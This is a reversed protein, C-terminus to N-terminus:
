PVNVAFKRAMTRIVNTIDIESLEENYILCECFNGKLRYSSTNGYGIGLYANTANDPYFNSGSSTTAMSVGNVMMTLGSGDGNTKITLIFYEGNSVAAQFPVDDIYTYSYSGGRNAPAWLGGSNNYIELDSSGTTIGNDIRFLGNGTVSVSDFSACSFFTYGSTLNFGSSTMDLQHSDFDAVYKGNNTLATWAPRLGASAATFVFGNTSKDTISDVDSGNFSITDSDSFDVWCYVNGADTYRYKRALSNIM